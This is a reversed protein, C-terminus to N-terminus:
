EGRNQQERADAQADERPDMPDYERGEEEEPWMLLWEQYDFGDAADMEEENGIPDYLYVDPKTIVPTSSIQATKTIIVVLSDKQSPDKGGPLISSDQQALVTLPIFLLLIELMLKTYKMAYEVVYNNIRQSQVETAQAKRTATM